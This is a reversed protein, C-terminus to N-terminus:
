LSKTIYDLWSYTYCQDLFVQHCAQRVACPWAISLTSALSRRPGFPKVSISKYPIQYPEIGQPRVHYFLIYDTATIINVVFESRTSAHLCERGNFRRAYCLMLTNCFFCKIRIALNGLSDNGFFPFIRLLPRVWITRQNVWRVLRYPNTIGSLRRVSRM